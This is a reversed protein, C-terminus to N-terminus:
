REAKYAIDGNVLVMEVASFTDFPHGDMIVIDADNGTKISGVRDNIGLIVAPNIFVAKLAEYEDMGEKVSLAAYM